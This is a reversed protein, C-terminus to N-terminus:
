WGACPGPTCSSTNRERSLPPTPGRRDVWPRLSSHRGERGGTKRRSGGAGDRRPSRPPRHERVHDVQHGLVPGEHPRASKGLRHAAQGAVLVAGAGPHRHEQREVPRGAPRGSVEHGRALREVHLHPWALLGGPEEPLCGRRLPRRDVEHVVGREEVPLTHVPLAVVVRVVVEAEGEEAERRQLDEGGERRVPRGDHMGVVPVRGQSGEVHARGERPAGDVVPRGRHQRHVVGSVLPVERGPDQLLQSNRGREVVPAEQLPVSPGVEQLSPQDEGIHGRGHAGGMGEFEPGVGPSEPKMIHEHPEPVPQDPDQVADVEVVPVRGRVGVYRGPVRRRVQGALGDALLRDLPVVAKGLVPRDRQHGHRGAQHM